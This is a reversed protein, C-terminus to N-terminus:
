HPVPNSTGTGIIKDITIRSTEVIGDLEELLASAEHTLANQNWRRVDHVMYRCYVIAQEGECEIWYHVSEAGWRKQVSWFTKLWKQFDDVSKGHKLANKYTISYLLNKRQTM